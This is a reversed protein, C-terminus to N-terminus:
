KLIDTFIDQLIEATREADGNIEHSYVDYTDMDGSHSVTM